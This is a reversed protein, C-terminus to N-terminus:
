RSRKLGAVAHPSNPHRILAAQFESRAEARRGAALLVEGLRERVPWYWDPPEDYHLGDELVAAQHLKAVAADTEGAGRDLEAGLMLEAIELLDRARSGVGIMRDEPMGARIARLAGLEARASDGAGRAAFAFGRGHHWMGVTYRLSDPPPPEQLMAGWQGFRVLAYYPVPALFEAPPVQLFLEWPLQSRFDRATEIATATDDTFMSAVILFHQNHALYFPYLGQPKQEGIYVQDLHVAHRNAEIAERYRGTRLFIHAPMHVLHGAGPMLRPLRLACPLARQPRPSMEVAHIYFHCAGPHDPHAALVRELRAIAAPMQPAPKGSPTYWDWPTLLMASEVAVAQADPDTPHRDAYRTAARWWLSDRRARDVGAPHAYRGSLAEIWAREEPSGSRARASDLAALAREETASDMPFNVNPGLALAIGWWPMPSTPDQRAAEAFARVSEETNFGYYLRLGQDFYAQARPVRTRIRHTLTGLDSYLPPSPVTDPFGAVLSALLILM